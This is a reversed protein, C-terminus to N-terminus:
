IKWGQKELQEFVDDLARYMAAREAATTQCIARREFRAVEDTCEFIGADHRYRVGADMVPFGHGCHECFANM